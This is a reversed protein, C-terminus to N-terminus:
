SNSTERGQSSSTGTGSRNISITTGTPTVSARLTNLVQEKNDQNIRGAFSTGHEDVDTLLHGNKKKPKFREWLWNGFYGSAGGLLFGLVFGATNTLIPGWDIPNEPETQSTM